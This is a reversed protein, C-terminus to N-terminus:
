SVGFKVVFIKRDEEAHENCSRPKLRPKVLRAHLEM